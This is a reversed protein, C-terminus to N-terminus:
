APGSYAAKEPAVEGPLTQYYERTASSECGKCVSRRRGYHLGFETHEKTESCKTCAKAYGRPEKSQQHRQKCHKSCFRSPGRKRIENDCAAVLCKKAHPTLCAACWKANHGRDSIDAGCAECTRGEPDYGTKDRHQQKQRQRYELLKEPNREEWEQRSQKYEPTQQRGKIRQLVRTRNSYYYNRAREKTLNDVCSECRLAKRSRRSIDIGCDLCLHNEQEADSTM